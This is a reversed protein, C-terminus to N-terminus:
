GKVTVIKAEQNDLAKLLMDRYKIAEEEEMMARILTVLDSYTMDKIQSRTVNKLCEYRM